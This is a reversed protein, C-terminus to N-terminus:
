SSGRTPPATSAPPPTSFASASMLAAACTSSGAWGSRAPSRPLASRRRPCPGGSATADLTVTTGPGVTQDDGALATPLFSATGPNTALGLHELAALEQFLDDPLTQLRNRDMNLFTLAALNDFVGAPLSAFKNDSLRLETLATLDDFIDSRISTLSRDDEDGELELLTLSTLGDFIGEPLTDATITLRLKELATPRQLHQGAHLRHLM